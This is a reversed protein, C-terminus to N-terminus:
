LYTRITPTPQAQSAKDRDHLLRIDRSITLNQSGSIPKM